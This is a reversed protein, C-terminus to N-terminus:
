NAPKARGQPMDASNWGMEVGAKWWWLLFLISVKGELSETGAPNNSEKSDRSNLKLHTRKMGVDKKKKKKNTFKSDTIAGFRLWQTCSGAIVKAILVWGFGVLSREDEKAENGGCSQASYFRSERQSQM